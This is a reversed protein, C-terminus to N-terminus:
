RGELVSTHCASMDEGKACDEDGHSSAICPHHESEVLRESLGTGIEIRLSSKGDGVTRLGLKMGDAIRLSLGMDGDPDECV